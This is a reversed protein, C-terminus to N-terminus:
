ATEGIAVLIDEFAWLNEVDAPQLETQFFEFLGRQDVDSHPKSGKGGNIRM